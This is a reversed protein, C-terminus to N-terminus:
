GRAAFWAALAEIGAKQSAGGGLRGLGGEGGRMMTLKWKAGDATRLRLSLAAHDMLAATENWWGGGAGEAEASVIQEAGLSVPEGDPEIRRDVPQLILRRDTVGIAHLRGSFAKQRNAAIVGQLVEGPELLSELHPRAVSDFDRPM